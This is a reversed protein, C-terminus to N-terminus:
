CDPDNPSVSIPSGYYGRDYDDRPIYNELYLPDSSRSPVREFEIPGPYRLFRPFIRLDAVEYVPIGSSALMQFVTESEKANAYASSLSNFELIIEEEGHKLHIQSAIRSVGELEHLPIVTLEKSFLYSVHRSELRLDSDTLAIIGKEAVIRKNLDDFQAIFDGYGLFQIESENTGLRSALKKGHKEVSLQQSVCGSFLIAMLAWLIQFVVKM